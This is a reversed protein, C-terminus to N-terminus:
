RSGGSGARAQPSPTVTHKVIYREVAGAVNTFGTKARVDADLLDSLRDELQGVTVADLRRKLVAPETWLRRALESLAGGAAVSHKADLLRRVGWALGGVARAPAARDTALVREWYRLATGCDGAAMADLVAFVTEERNNGVLAEIDAVAIEGRSGVYLALKSVENDLAGLADGALERLREACAPSMRKGYATQARQAIWAILSRGRPSECRIAKGIRQVIKYLRTRADFSDCCLILCGGDAPAACYRELGERHKSVFGDADEVIVLRRDALLSFTRVEDLVEALTAGGGDLRTAGFASGQGGLEDALIASVAESRLYADSGYVVYIPRTM